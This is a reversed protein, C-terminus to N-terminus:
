LRVALQWHHLHEPCGREVGQVLTLLAKWQLYSSSMSHTVVQEGVSVSVRGSVTDNNKTVLVMEIIATMRTKRGGHEIGM